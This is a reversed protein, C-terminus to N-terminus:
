KQVIRKDTIVPYKILKLMPTLAAAFYAHMEFAAEFASRSAQPQELIESIEVAM